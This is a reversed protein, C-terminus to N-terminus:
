KGAETREDKEGDKQKLLKELNVSDIVANVLESRSMGSSESVKNTLDYNKDSLYISTSRGKMQRKYGM